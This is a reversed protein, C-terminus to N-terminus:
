EQIIDSLLVQGVIDDSLKKTNFDTGFMYDLDNIEEESLKTFTITFTDNIKSYEFDLVLTEQMKYEFLADLIATRGDKRNSKGFNVFRLFDNYHFVVKYAGNEKKHDKILKYIKVRQQMIPMYLIKAVEGKLKFRIDAPLQMICQSEVQDMLYESPYFQIYKKGQNEVLETGGLLHFGGRWKGNQFHNITTNSLKYVRRITDDYDSKSLKRTPDNIIARTVDSEAITIPRQATPNRMAEKVFFSLLVQDKSDFMKITPKGDFVTNNFSLTTRRAGDEDGFVVVDTKGEPAMTIREATASFIPKDAIDELLSLTQRDVDYNYLEKLVRLIDITLDLKFSNFVSKPTSKDSGPYDIMLTDPDWAWIRVKELYEQELEELTKGNYAADWQQQTFMNHNLIITPFCYKNVDDHKWMQIDVMNKCSQYYRKKKQSRTKQKLKALKHLESARTNGLLSSSMTEMILENYSSCYDRTRTRNKSYFEELCPNLNSQIASIMKSTYPQM